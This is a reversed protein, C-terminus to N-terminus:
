VCPRNDMLATLIEEWHNMLLFHGEGTLFRTRCNPLSDHLFRAAHIPVNVDADGHWIDIQPIVDALAFGWEQNVLIDDYAVGKSGSRFGERVANIFIELNQPTYLVERDKIPISSMLLRSATEIDGMVMGRMIWRILRTMWPLKRSSRALIQNMIPMGKYPDPRKMPAMSSITACAIIQEPLQYACALAYPGGASHGQVFFRHIGLHNALQSIDKPFDIIRRNFQFDSLGHGPRDVSIFHINLRLLMNESAPHDLRSGGSGHFHFIPCGTLQGFEAFGLHRGDALTLTQNIRDRHM